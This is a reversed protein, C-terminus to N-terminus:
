VNNSIKREVVLYTSWKGCVLDVVRVKEGLDLRQWGEIPNQDRNVLGRQGHDNLGFTWISDGENEPSYGGTVAVIHRSGVGLKMVNKLEKVEGIPLDPITSIARGFPLIWARKDDSIAATIWGASKCEVFDVLEDTNACMIAMEQGKGLTEITVFSPDEITSLEEELPIWGADNTSRSDTRISWISHYYEVGPVPELFHTVIFSFHADGASLRSIPDSFEKLRTSPPVTITLIPPQM